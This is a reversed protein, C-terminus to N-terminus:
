LCIFVRGAKWAYIDLLKLMQRDLNKKLFKEKNPRFIEYMFTVLHMSPSELQIKKIETNFGYKGNVLSAVM